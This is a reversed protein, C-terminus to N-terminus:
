RTKEYFSVTIAIMIHFHYTKERRQQDTCDNVYWGHLKSPKKVNSIIHTFEGKRRRNSKDVHNDATNSRPM